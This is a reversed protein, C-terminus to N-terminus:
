QYKANAYLEGQYFMKTPRNTLLSVYSDMYGFAYLADYFRKCQCPDISKISGYPYGGPYLGNLEQEEMLNTLALHLPFSENLRGQAFRCVKVALGQENKAFFLIRVAPKGGKNEMRWLYSQLSRLMPYKRIAKILKSRFMGLDKIQQDTEEQQYKADACTFILEIVQLTGAKELQERGFLAARKARYRANERRKREAKKFKPLTAAEQVALILQEALKRAQHRCAKNQMGRRPPASIECLAHWIGSSLCTDLLLEVKEPLRATFAEKLAATHFIPGRVDLLRTMLEDKAISPDAVKKLALMDNVLGEAENIQKIVGEPSELLFYKRAVENSLPKELRTDAVLCADFVSQARIRSQRSSGGSMFM